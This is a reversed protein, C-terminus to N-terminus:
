RLAPITPMCWWAHSAVRVLTNVRAGSDQVDEAENTVGVFVKEM